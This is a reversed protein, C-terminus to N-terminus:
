SRLLLTPLHCSPLMRPFREMFGNIQLRDLEGLTYFRICIRKYHSCLWLLPDILLDVAHQNVLVAGNGHSRIKEKRVALCKGKTQEWKQALQSRVTASIPALQIVLTHMPCYKILEILSHRWANPEALSAGLDDEMILVWGRKSTIQKARVFALKWSALCALEARGTIRKPETEDSIYIGPLKTGAKLFNSIPLFNEHRDEADIAKFRHAKWGGKKLAWDM